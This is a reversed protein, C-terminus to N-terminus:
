GVKWGWNSTIVVNVDKTFNMCCNSDLTTLGVYHLMLRNIYLSKIAKKQICDTGKLNPFLDRIFDESQSVFILFQSFVPRKKIPFCGTNPQLIPLIFDSIFSM